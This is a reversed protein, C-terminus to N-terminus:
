SIHIRLFMKYQLIYIICVKQKIQDEKQKRKRSIARDVGHICDYCKTGLIAFPIGSFTIQREKGVCKRDEFLLKHGKLNFEISNFIYFYVYIFKLLQGDHNM